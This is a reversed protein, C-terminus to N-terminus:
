KKKIKWNFDGGIFVFYHALMEGKRTSPFEVLVRLEKSNKMEHRVVALSSRKTYKEKIQEKLLAYEDTSNVIELLDNEVQLLLKKM